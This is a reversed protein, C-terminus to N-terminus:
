IPISNQAIQQYLSYYSIAIKEWIRKRAFVLNQERVNLMFNPNELVYKIKEALLNPDHESLIIKCGENMLERFEPLDTGIIPIGYSSALHVVGSTGTCTHYPLVILDIDKFFNLLNTEPIYGAFHVNMKQYRIKYKELYDPYRPHSEGALVLKTAIKGENIIEFAKFLLDLDKYPGVNGFYLITKPNHIIKPEVVANWTGHPIWVPNRCEYREKLLKVYSKLTVVLCSSFTLLKTAILTGLRNLFMDGFGTKQVKVREFMNHLTVITKLGLLRCIVPLSLGLFNVIRSRGFIALHINFHVVDPNLRFVRLPITLLSAPNELSWARHIKVKESLFPIENLDFNDEILLVDIHAIESLKQLENILNYSYEALGNRTPPFNSIFCLRLGRQDSKSKKSCKGELM